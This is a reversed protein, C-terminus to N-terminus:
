SKFIAVPADRFGSIDIWQTSSGVQKPSSYSTNNGLGLQGQDNNGWSWLTGDTKLGFTQLCSYGVQVKSWNTLSGVQKPSSYYTRNGLGLAGYSGYGWMWLTGDTKVCGSGGYANQPQLWNTLAGVQKPSSYQTTNVNLGLEGYRNGGWSWLTGDTKTAITSYQGCCVNLWNTLSGVQKPSSYKTINGLGLQGQDSAGWVWLTGDTKIAAMNFVGSSVVSWITLSGVQKPSSYNTINGLGLQGSGNAGWTWLTGDTKIAAVCTYNGGSVKLWNTLAGVQKPSSYDTNNGLGLGGLYNNGWAWLTGDSKIAFSRRYGTSVQLWVYSGIQSPSNTNTVNGNGLQGKNNYGWTYLHNAPPSPWKGQAVADSAQSLTWVGQYQQYPYTLPM